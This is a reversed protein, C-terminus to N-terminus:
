SKEIEVEFKGESKGKKLVVTHVGLEKIHEMVLYNEDIQNGTTDKVAIVVDRPNISKFLHGKENAKAKITIKQNKLNNILDEFTKIEQSVKQSMKSKKDALDALAKPTALVALGRSILVNQAFGDKLDKVDYRNGVKPVDTLLIVKM